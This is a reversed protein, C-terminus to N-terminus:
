YYPNPRGVIRKKVKKSVDYPNRGLGLTTLSKKDVPSPSPLVSVSPRLTILRSVGFPDQLSQRKTTSSKQSNRGM